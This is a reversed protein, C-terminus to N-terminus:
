KGVYRLAFGFGKKNYTHILIHQQATGGTNYSKGKGAYIETHGPHHTKGGAKVAPKGSRDEFIVDGAQLDSAKTIVKWGKAILFKAASNASNINRWGSGNAVHNVEYATYIGSDYLSFSVLSACSYGGVYKKYKQKNGYLKEVSKTACAPNGNPRKACWFTKSGSKSTLKKLKKASNVLATRRAKIEKDTLKKPETKEPFNDGIDFVLTITDYDDNQKAVVNITNEGEKVENYGLGSIIEVDDSIKEVGVDVSKLETKARFTYKKTDTTYDIGNGNVTVNKILNKTTKKVTGTNTTKITSGGGGNDTGNGLIICRLLSTDSVGSNRGFTTVLLKIFIPIVILIVLAIIRRFLKSRFKAVKKPDGSIVSSILDITVFLLTLIPAAITVVRYLIHFPMMTECKIDKEENTREDYFDPTGNYGSHTINKCYESTIDKGDKDKTELTKCQNYLVDLSSKKCQEWDWDVQEFGCELKKKTWVTTNYMPHTTPLFTYRYCHYKGDNSDGTYCSKIAQKKTMGGILKKSFDKDTIKRNPDENTTNIITANNGVGTQEALGICTQSDTILKKGDSIFYSKNDQTYDNIKDLDEFTILSDDAHPFGDIVINEGDVNGRSSYNRDLTVDKFNIIYKDNSDKNKILNAALGETEMNGRYDVVFQPYGFFVKLNYGYTGYMTTAYCFKTSDTFNGVGFTERLYKMEDETYFDDNSKAEMFLVSNTNRCNSRSCVGDTLISAAICDQVTSFYKSSDTIKSSWDNYVFKVRENNVVAVKTGYLDFFCNNGALFDVKSSYSDDLCRPNPRKSAEKNTSLAGYKKSSYYTDYSNASADHALLYCYYGERSEDLKVSDTKIASVGFPILVFLCLLYKVLRKM